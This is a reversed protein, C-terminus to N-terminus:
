RVQIGMGGVVSINEMKTHPKVRFFHRVLDFYPRIGLFAECFHIFTPTHIISNLNLHVLELVYHHLIECFFD